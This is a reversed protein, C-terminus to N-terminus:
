EEEKTRSFFFGRGKSWNIAFLSVDTMVSNAPREVVYLDFGEAHIRDKDVNGKLMDPWWSLHLNPVRRIASGLVDAAKLYKRLNKSDAPAFDFACWETSPSLDHAEHIDHSSSPLLEDPIWGRMIAGDKGAEAMSPYFSEQDRHNPLVVWVVVLLVVIGAAIVLLKSPSGFRAAGPM